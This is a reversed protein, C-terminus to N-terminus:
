YDEYDISIPSTSVLLGAGFIMNWIIFKVVNIIKITKWKDVLEKTRGGSSSDLGKTGWSIDDIRCLAFTTLIILYTPTYFLFSFAGFLIEFAFSIKCFLIIFVFIPITYSVIVAVVLYKYITFTTEQGPLLEFFKTKLKENDVLVLNVFNIVHQAM